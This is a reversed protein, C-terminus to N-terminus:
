EEVARYAHSSRGDRDSRMEETSEVRHKMLLLALHRAADMHEMGLAHKTEEMTTTLACKPVSVVARAYRYPHPLCLM